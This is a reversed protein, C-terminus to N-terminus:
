SVLLANSFASKSDNNSVKPEAFIGSSPPLYKAICGFPKASKNRM